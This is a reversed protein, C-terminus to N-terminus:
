VMNSIKQPLTERKEAELYYKPVAYDEEETDVMYAVSCPKFTYKGVKVLKNRMNEDNNMRVLKQAQTPTAIICLDCGMLFVKVIQKKM